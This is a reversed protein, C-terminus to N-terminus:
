DYGNLKEVKGFTKFVKVSIIIDMASSASFYVYGSIITLLALTFLLTILHHTKTPKFDTDYLIIYIYTM